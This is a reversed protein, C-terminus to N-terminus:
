CASASRKRALLDLYENVTLASPEVFIGLDKERLAANLYKQADKKTGRITKNHYTRKGSADRGLFIRVLWTDGRKITQGAM